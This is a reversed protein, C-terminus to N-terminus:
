KTANSSEELVHPESVRKEMMDKYIQLRHKNVTNIDYKDRVYSHLNEALENRLGENNVLSKIAKHWGKKDDNVLIGTVGDEILEKYIGYDQAILAKRKMGSEIIKLESNHNIIGNANYMHMESVEIDYVTARGEEITAIEDNFEMSRFANSHPKSCLSTLKDNKQDSVFGIEKKFSDSADRGLNLKYYYRNYHKNYSHVITGIIDFGLLVYQVEKVLQLSKSCFSVGSDSVTGDSEFLGKLFERIVPKPSRLILDPIRFSKGAPGCLGYKRAMKLFSVCTCTVDVGFGEKAKSTSCRKDVKKEYRLPNLGMGRMLQEVDNVTKEHRKDCTIRVTTKGYNGDGLMYGIFRGWEENVTIKPLMEDKTRAMKEDTMGKTLLMPYSMTQYEKQSLVPATLEIKDGIGLAGLQVWEGDVMIRHHPTGELSYGKKTTIRITSRDEYKFHEVVQRKKKSRKTVISEVLTTTDDYTDLSENIFEDNEVHMIIANGDFRTNVLDEIRWIGKDTEVLSDGVICKAKNFMNERYSIQGKDSKHQYNEALPALCIDCYDYHKGYQTLPLTWRRVYNKKSMDPYPKNEIKKLWNEYDPDNVLKYDNTFIKEFDLWITEEKRIPRARKNNNEDIETISGRIDFGCMVFQFRDKLTTDNSLTAMSDKIKILDHYHSSGGIWAVRVKGSDNPVAESKWMSEELNLANPIVLVNPNFKRIIDAFITTTCTVYDALTLNKEIKKDMKESVIIPHLHHTPPPMWYDDIDMVLTVGRKKLEGFLHESNEYPGLMRHFHIIDYKSLEDIDEVNPSADIHVDVEDSHNRKLHQAPWISRFHGVGSRDSPCFLVKIRSQM